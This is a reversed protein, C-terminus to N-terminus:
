YMHIMTTYTSRVSFYIFPMFINIIFFPIFDLLLNGHILTILIYLYLTVIKDKCPVAYLIM